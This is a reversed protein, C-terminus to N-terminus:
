KSGMDKRANDILRRIVDAMSIRIHYLRFHGACERRLYLRQAPTLWLGIAKKM